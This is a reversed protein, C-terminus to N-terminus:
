CCLWSIRLCVHVMEARKGLERLTAPLLHWDKRDTESLLSLMVPAVREALGAFEPRESKIEIFQALTADPEYVPKGDVLVPVGDVIKQVRLAQRKVPDM